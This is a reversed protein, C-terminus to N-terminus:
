RQVNLRIEPLGHCLESSQVPKQIQLDSESRRGSCPHVPEDEIADRRRQHRLHGAPRPGPLRYECAGCGICLKPDVYRSACPKLAGTRISSRPRRWTSRRRRPRVGSRACSASPPWPGPCAAAAITSPRASRSRRGRHGSTDASRRRRAPPAPSAPRRSPTRRHRARAQGAEGGRHDGLDRRDPLGPRVARLEARLLRHAAGAGADLAGELGAEFSAPHLANNPCVKMCEGCRICRALFHPEDLAGPPRILRPDTERALAPTARLLPVLGAGAALGTLLKRRQLEPAKVGIRPRSPPGSRSRSAAQRATASATSASTASPRAAVARRSDSRRRGPLAAPLPQLRRVPQPGQGADPDVLPLGPRAARRAPLARPVLLRTVRLNLVLLGVFVLGILDAQRFHPQKFSVLTGQLVISLGDATLRLPRLETAYLADFRPTSRTAPRRCSPSRCAASSCRSPISSAAWHRASSRRGGAARGARLVEVGAVDQLPEVRPARAGSRRRSSAGSSITSRASRASGAASSGGSSSRRAGPHRAGVPSRPVADRDVARDGSGAAPRGRPLSQGSLAAPGRRRRAPVIRSLGRPVAAVPLACFFVGAFDPAPAAHTVARM